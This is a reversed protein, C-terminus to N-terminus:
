AKGKKKLQAEDEAKLQADIIAGKSPQNGHMEAPKRPDSKSRMEEMNDEKKQHKGQEEAALKNAISRQDKSDIDIHSHKQGKEYRPRTDQTPPKQESNQFSEMNHRIQLITLTTNVTALPDLSGRRNNGLPM